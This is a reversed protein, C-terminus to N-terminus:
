FNLGSGMLNALTVNDGYRELANCLAELRIDDRELYPNNDVFRWLGSPDKCLRKLYYRTIRGMTAETEELLKRYSTTYANRTGNAYISESIRTFNVKQRALIRHLPLEMLAFVTHVPYLLLTLRTALMLGYTLTTRVKLASHQPHHPLEYDLAGRSVEMYPLTHLHSHITPNDVIHQLPLKISPTKKNAFFLRVTGVDTQTERHILLYIFSQEDNKDAVLGESQIAHRSIGYKQMFVKARLRCVREYADSDSVLHFEYAESLLSYLISM